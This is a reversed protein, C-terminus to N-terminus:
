LMDINDEFYQYFSGKSIKSQGVIRNMNSGCLGYESFEDLAAQEITQQKENSLNFFNAEANRM